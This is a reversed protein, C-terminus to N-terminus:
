NKSISTTYKHLLSPCYDVAESKPLLTVFFVLNVIFAAKRNVSPIAAKRNVSPIAAQSAISVCSLMFAIAASTSCM